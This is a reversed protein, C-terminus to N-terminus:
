FLDEILMEINELCLMEAHRRADENNQAMFSWRAFLVNYKAIRAKLEPPDEPDIQITTIDPLELPVYIGTKEFESNCKVFSAILQEFFDNTTM